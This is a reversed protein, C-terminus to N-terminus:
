QAVKNLLKDTDSDASVRQVREGLEEIAEKVDNRIWKVRLQGMRSKFGVKVLRDDISRLWEVAKTLSQGDSYKKIDRSFFSHLSMQSAATGEYISAAVYEAPVNLITRPYGSKIAEDFLDSLTNGTDGDVDSLELSIRNLVRESEEKEVSSILEDMIQDANTGYFGNAMAREQRLINANCKPDRNAALRLSELIKERFSYDRFGLNILELSIRILKYFWRQSYQGRCLLKELQNAFSEVQDDEMWQLARWQYEIDQAVLNAASEPNKALVFERFSGEIVHPSVNRGETLPLLAKSILLYDEYELFKSDDIMNVAMNSTNPKKPTNGASTQVAYGIFSSLARARGSSDISKDVLIPTGLVHSIAPISRSLARVNITSAKIGDIVAEEINFDIQEPFHLKPEVINQYLTMLDPEFAIQRMVAKEASSDEEFSLPQNRVLMVHWGHNEVMNNVFGLFSRDDHAFSCRECDDLIVLVKTMDILSLMLDSNVSVQIGLDVLKSSLVSTGAEIASKKFVNMTTGVRDKANEYIHLRSALVRNCIEDYDSVGFLSVRCTKVGIDKLAAKLDNECYYTKGSGWEGHLVLAQLGIDDCQMYIKIAETIEDAQM